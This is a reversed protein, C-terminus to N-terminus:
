RYYTRSAAALMKMVMAMDAIEIEEAVRADEVGGALRGQESLAEYYDRRQEANNRAEWWTYGNAPDILYSVLFWTAAQETMKPM